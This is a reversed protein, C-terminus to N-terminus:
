QLQIGGPQIFWLTYLRQAWGTCQHCSKSGQLTRRPLVRQQAPPHRGCQPQPQKSSVLLWMSPRQPSAPAPTVISATSPVAAAAAAAAPFRCCSHLELLNPSPWSLYNFLGSAKV